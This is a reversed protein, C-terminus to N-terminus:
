SLHLYFEAVLFAYCAHDATLFPVLILSEGTGQQAYNLTINNAQLKPM